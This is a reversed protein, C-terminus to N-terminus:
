PEEAYGDEASHRVRGNRKRALLCGIMLGVALGIGIAEYPYQRVNQDLVKGKDVMKDRVRGCTEKARDLAASLRRRAEEAKQGAVDATASMLTRADEALMGLDDRLTQTQQKMTNMSTQTSSKENNM